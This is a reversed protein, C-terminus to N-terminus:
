VAVRQNSSRCRRSRAGRGASDANMLPALHWVFHVLTMRMPVAVAAAMCGNHVVPMSIIQVVAVQVERVVAMEILVPQAHPFLIRGVARRLVIASAVARIVPMSWAAAVIGNRMAIVDVVEDRTVKMVRVSRVAVIM